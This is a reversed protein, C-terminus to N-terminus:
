CWCGACGCQVNIRTYGDSTCPQVLRKGEVMLDPRVNDKFGGSPKRCDMMRTLCYEVGAGPEQARCTHAKDFNPFGMPRSGETANYSDPDDVRQMQTLNVLEAPCRVRAVDLLTPNYKCAGAPKGAGSLRMQKDWGYECLKVLSDGAAKMPASDRPFEPLATCAERSDVGGYVCGWPVRDGPFMSRAGGACTNFAGAGGAGIQLDFQNGAVDHGTNVSQAIIDRDAGEVTLRFCAGLGRQPDDSTGYTGVGLYVADGTRARFAAEGALLATSGFTWDMCAFAADGGNADQPDPPCYYGTQGGAGNCM